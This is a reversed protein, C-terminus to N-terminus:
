SNGLEQVAKPVGTAAGERIEVINPHARLPQSGGMSRLDLDTIGFEPPNPDVIIVKAAKTCFACLNAPGVALTTGIIMLVDVDSRTAEYLAREIEPLGEGFWVV